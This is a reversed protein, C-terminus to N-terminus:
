LVIFERSTKTLREGRGNIVAIDDEIRVGFKGELYIGPEITFVMGERLETESNPAIYPEEHIDLGLGHGTRHTFYEGYGKSTIIGRAVSDIERAKIGEKVAQFAAEQAEQVIEYVDRAEKSPQGIAFTRTIDSCYGKLRAGFDIILIDGDRIERDGPTHHPNAGNPGSAVIPDFSFREAGLEVVMNGILRALKRETMGRLEKVTVEELVRDAIKAAERMLEIESEDKVMRLKSILQGLPKLEYRRLFDYMRLLHAAQMTDDVAISGERGFYREILNRMIEYPNESDSWIRVDKIWIGKLENEYLKPALLSVEGGSSVLLAFLRELTASPSLGTLYFLNTGPSVIAGEIGSERMLEILRNLRGRFPLMMHGCM